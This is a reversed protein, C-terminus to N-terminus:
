AEGKVVKEGIDVAEKYERKGIADVFYMKLKGRNKVEIEGRYTCTFKDKVLSYTNESINIKGPASRSEMRAAVNVTDGWIDYAFKKIGVVGAVVPGSNIGVRIEFPRLDPDTQIRPDNMVNVIERAALIMKEAHDDFLSHLGAACMYSDGITKIKELDYKEIIEDFRSFYFDVSKVLIEPSLNESTSTFGKFDTFMVSTSEFSKAAVKGKEMLEAATEEPLINLLLSQSRNRETEIIKNTKRVFLMKKYAGVALIILIILGLITAYIIYKQRDVQLNTIEAQQELMGIEDEKKLLDFDFQLGRIADNTELNFLSDKQALYLEQYKFANAFDNRSRYTESLGKYIDRLEYDAEMQTALELAENYAKLAENDNSEKQLDGSAILAKVVQLPQNSAKAIVYAERLYNLAKDRHGNKFEIKGLMTYNEAQLSTGETLDLARLYYDLAKEQEGKKYFLEGLGFLYAISIRNNSLNALYPEIQKYYAIAKDYDNPSDGYVGGINVLSTAIQLTDNLKESIRLSRLYNEIARSNSGQSYYVAGLNNVMNAIGLTDGAKEFTELSQTWYELVQLYNGEYYYGMGLYKLALAEGIQFNIEDALEYARTAYERSLSIDEEQLVAISLANLASVTTTDRGNKSIVLELSDIQSQQGYTCLFSLVVSTFLLLIKSSFNTKIM